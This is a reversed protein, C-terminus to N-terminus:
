RLLAHSNFQLYDPEKFPFLGIGKERYSVLIPFINIGAVEAPPPRLIGQPRQFAGNSMEDRVRDFVELYDKVMLSGPLHLDHAKATTVCAQM